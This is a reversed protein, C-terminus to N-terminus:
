VPAAARVAPWPSSLGAEHFAAKWRLCGACEGCPQDAIHLCPWALHMPAPLDAALEALQRDTLDVVPLDVVIGAGGGSEEVVREFLMAQIVPPALGRADAGGMRPWVVRTCGLGVADVCATLVLHAERLDAPPAGGGGPAEAARSLLLRSAGFVELHENVVNLRAAAAEDTELAHWLVLAENSRELCLCVLAPLDGRDILLTGPPNM